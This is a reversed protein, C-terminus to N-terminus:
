EKGRATDLTRQFQPLQDEYVPGKELEVITAELEEVRRIACAHHRHWKWCEASHTRDRDDTVTLQKDLEEVRLMLAGLTGYCRAMISHADNLANRGGVGTQCRKMLAEVERRTPTM